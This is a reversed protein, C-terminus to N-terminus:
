CWRGDAGPVVAMSRLQGKAAARVRKEAVKAAAPASRAGTLLHFNVLFGGMRAHYALRGIGGHKRSTVAGGGGSAAREADPGGSGGGRACAAPRSERVTRGAAEGLGGM